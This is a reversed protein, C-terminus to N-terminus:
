QKKYEAYRKMLKDAWCRAILLRIIRRDSRFNPANRNGDKRDICTMLTPGALNVMRQLFRVLVADNISDKNENTVVNICFRRGTKDFKLEREFNLESLSLESSDSPADGGYGTLEFHELQEAVTCFVITYFSCIKYKTKLLDVLDDRTLQFLDHLEQPTMNKKCFEHLKLVLSACDGDDDTTTANMGEFFRAYGGMEKKLRFRLLGRDGWVQGRMEEDWPSDKLARIEANQEDENLDELSRIM